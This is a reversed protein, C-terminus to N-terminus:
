GYDNSWRLKACRGAATWRVNRYITSELREGKGSGQVVMCATKGARIAQCVEVNWELATM